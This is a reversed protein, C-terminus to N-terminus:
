SCRSNKPHLPAPNRAGVHCTVVMQLELYLADSVSKQDKPARPM